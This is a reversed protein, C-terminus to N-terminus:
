PPLVPPPHKQPPCPHVPWRHKTHWAKLMRLFGSHLRRINGDQEFIVARDVAAVQNQCKAQKTMQGEASMVWKPIDDVQQCFVAGVGQNGFKQGDPDAGFSPRNRIGNRFPIGQLVRHSRQFILEGRHLYNRVCRIGIFRSAGQKETLPFHLRPQRSRLLRRQCKM